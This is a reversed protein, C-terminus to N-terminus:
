TETGGNKFSDELRMRVISDNISERYKVWEPKLFLGSVEVIKEKVELRDVEFWDNLNFEFKSHKKENVIELKENDKGRRCSGSTSYTDGVNISAFDVPNVDQLYHHPFSVYVQTDVEISFDETWHFFFRYQDLEKDEEQTLPEKNYWKTLLNGLRDEFRFKEYPKKIGIFEFVLPTEEFKYNM